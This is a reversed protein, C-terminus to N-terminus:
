AKIRATVERVWADNEDHESWSAVIEVISLLRAANDRGIHRGKSRAVDLLRDISMRIMAALQAPDEAVQAGVVLSELVEISSFQPETSIESQPRPASQEIIEIGPAVPSFDAAESTAIKLTSDGLVVLDGHRLAATHKIRSGNVFTGNSSRLDTITLAGNDLSLRAHARSVSPDDLSFSCNEGRGVLTVGDHLRYRSSQYEVWYTRM